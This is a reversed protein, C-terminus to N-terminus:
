LDSNVKLADRLRLNDSFSTKRTSFKVFRVENNVVERLSSCGREIYIYLRVHHLIIYPM